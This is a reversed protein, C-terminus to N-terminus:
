KGLKVDMPDPMVSLTSIPMQVGGIASYIEVVDNGLANPVFLVGASTTLGMGYEGGGSFSIERDPPPTGSATAPYASIYSEPLNSAYLEGAEDVALGNPHPLGSGSLTRILTPDTVPSAYAYVAPAVSSESALLDGRADMALGGVQGWEFPAAIIVIRQLPRRKGSVGPPYVLVGSEPSLSSNFTASYGVFLYSSPSVLLATAVLTRAQPLELTLSRGPTTSGYTFVDITGSFNGASAYLNGSADVAMPYGVGPYTLDPSPKPIGHAIPFRLVNPTASQAVGYAFYLHGTVAPV